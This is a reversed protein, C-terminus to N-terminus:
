ATPWRPTCSSWSPRCWFTWLCTPWSPRCRRVRATLIVPAAPPRASAQNIIPDIIFGFVQKSYSRSKLVAHVKHTTELFSPAMRAATELAKAGSPCSRRALDQARSGPRVLPWGPSSDLSLRTLEADRLSEELGDDDSGAAFHAAAEELFSSAGERDSRGAKRHSSAASASHTRASEHHLFAQVFAGRSGHTPTSVEAVPRFVIRGSLPQLALANLADLSVRLALELPGVTGDRDAFVTSTPKLALHCSPVDAPSLSGPVADASGNLLKYFVFAAPDRAVADPLFRGVVLTRLWAYASM